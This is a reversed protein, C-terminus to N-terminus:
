IESEYNMITDLREPWTELGFREPCHGSLTFVAPWNPRFPYKIKLGSKVPCEEFKEPWGFSKVPCGTFNEPWNLKRAFM